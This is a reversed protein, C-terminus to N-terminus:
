DNALRTRRQNHETSMTISGVHGATRTESLQGDEVMKTRSVQLIAPCRGILRDTPNLQTM